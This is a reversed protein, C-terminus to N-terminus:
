KNIKSQFFTVRLPSSLLQERMKINMLEIENEIRYMTIKGIPIDLPYFQWDPTKRIDGVHHKKGQYSVIVKKKKPNFTRQYKIDM